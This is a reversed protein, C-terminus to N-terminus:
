LFLRTSYYQSFDVTEDNSQEKSFEEIDLIADNDYCIIKDNIISAPKTLGLCNLRDKLNLVDEKTQDKSCSFLLAFLLFLNIKKM